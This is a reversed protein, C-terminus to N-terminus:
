MGGDVFFWTLLTEIQEGPYECSSYDPFSEAKDMLGQIIPLVMGMTDNESGPVGKPYEDTVEIEFADVLVDTLMPVVLSNLLAEILNSVLQYFSNNTLNVKDRPITLDLADELAWNVVDQLASDVDQGDAPYTTDTLTTGEERGTLGELVGYLTKRLFAGIDKLLGDALSEVLTQGDNFPKIIAADLVGFDFDGTVIDRLVTRNTYLFEALTYVCYYDPNRADSRQNYHDLATVNLSTLDGLLGGLLTRAVAIEAWSSSISSCLLDYSGLDIYLDMGLISDDFVPEGNELTGLLDDLTDMLWTGGQEYTFYTKGNEDIQPENYDTKYAFTTICSASLLMVFSMLLALIRTSKKRM